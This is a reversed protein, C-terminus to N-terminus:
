IIIITSVNVVLPASLIYFLAQTIHEPELTPMAAFLDTSNMSPDGSADFIETRVIGPSINQFNRNM